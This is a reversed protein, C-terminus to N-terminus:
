FSNIFSFNGAFQMMFIGTKGASLSIMSGPSYTVYIDSVGTNKLVVILSKNFTSSTLNVNANTELSKVIDVGISNLGTATVTGAVELASGPNVVGIGVNAGNNHINSSNTM